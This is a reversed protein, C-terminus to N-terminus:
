SRVLELNTQGVTIVSGLLVQVWRKAAIRTGNVKTGNTSALDKVEIANNGCSGARIAAHEHSVFGDESLSINVDLSKGIIINGGSAIDELSFTAKQCPIAAAAATGAITRLILSSTTVPVQLKVAEL